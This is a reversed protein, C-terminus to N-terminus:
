NFKVSISSRDNHSLALWKLYGQALPDSANRGGNTLTFTVSFTTRKKVDTFRIVSPVVTVNVEPPPVIWLEVIGCLTFHFLLALM